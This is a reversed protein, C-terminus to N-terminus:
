VRGGKKDQEKVTAKMAAAAMNPRRAVMGVTKIRPGRWPSFPGVSKKRRGGQENQLLEPITQAQTATIWCHTLVWRYGVPINLSLAEMDLLIRVLFPDPQLSTYRGRSNWSVRSVAAQLLQNTSANGLLKTADSGSEPSLSDTAAAVCSQAPLVQNPVTNDDSETAQVSAPVGLRQYTPGRKEVASSVAKDAAQKYGRRLQSLVESRSVHGRGRQIMGPRHGFVNLLADYFRSDPQPDDGDVLEPSACQQATVSADDLGSQMWGEVRKRRWSRLKGSLQWHHVVFAYERKAVLQAARWRLGEGLEGTTDYIPDLSRRRGAHSHDRLSATINWGKAYQKLGMRQSSRRTPGRAVDRPSRLRRSRLAHKVKPVKAAENALVQMLVTAAAVPVKWPTKAVDATPSQVASQLSTRKLLRWVRLALGTKGAKAALNLTATLVHPDLIAYRSAQNAKPRLRSEVMQRSTVLPQAVARRAFRKTNLAPYIRMVVELVGAHGPEHRYRRLFLGSATVYQLLSVLRYSDAQAIAADIQQILPKIPCPAVDPASASTASAAPSAASASQVVGMEAPQKLVISPMTSPRESANSQSQEAHTTTLVARALAQYRQTTAQRLITNFTVADPQLPPQRLQTMHQFVHKCISASKLVSLAYHILQNYVGIGIAPRVVPEGKILLTGASRTQGDPLSQMYERLYYRIVKAATGLRGKEAADFSGPMSADQASPEHLLVTTEFRCCASLIWTIEPVSPTSPLPLRGGRVLRILVVLSDAYEARKSSLYQRERQSLGCLFDAQVRSLVAELNQLARTIERLVQSSPKGFEAVLAAQRRLPFKPRKAEKHANWWARVEAAYTEIAFRTHGSAIMARILATQSATSRPLHTLHMASVLSAAVDLHQPSPFGRTPRAGSTSPALTLQSIVQQAALALRSGATPAGFGSTAKKDSVHAPTTATLPTQSQEFDSGFRPNWRLKVLLYRIINGATLSQGAAALHLACASTTEYALARAKRAHLRSQVRCAQLVLRRCKRAITESDM